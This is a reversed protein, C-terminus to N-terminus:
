YLFATTLGFMLAEVIVTHAFLQDTQFVFPCVVTECGIYIQIVLRAALRQQEMRRKEEQAQM